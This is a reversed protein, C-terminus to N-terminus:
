LGTVETIFDRLAAVNSYVGPYKPRACGSGWSVIGGLVDGVVLPGGSDGQCSDKGGGNVGACLMRTTIADEGYVQRCTTYSVIQVTVGQLATPLTDSGEETTGWGSVLVETDDPWVLGNEPLKVPAVKDSLKLPTALELITIDYDIISSDFKPNQHIKAIKVEQGGSERISTGARISIDGKTLGETCHGATVVYKESIISGGCFHQGYYQLSVQWPVQEIPIDSGGVIRGDPFFKNKHLFPPVASVTALVLAFLVVFKM